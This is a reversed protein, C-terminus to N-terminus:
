NHVRMGRLDDQKRPAEVVLIVTFSTLFWKTENLSKFDFGSSHSLPSVESVETLSRTIYKYNFTINACKKFCNRRLNKKKNHTSLEIAQRSLFLM